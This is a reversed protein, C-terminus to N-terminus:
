GKKENEISQRVLSALYEPDGLSYYVATQSKRMVLLALSVAPIPSGEAISLDAEAERIYMRAWNIRYDDVIISM